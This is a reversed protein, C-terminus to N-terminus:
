SLFKSYKNMMVKRFIEFLCKSYAKANDLLYNFLKKNHIGNTDIFILDQHISDFALTM